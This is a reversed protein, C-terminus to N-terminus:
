ANLLLRVSCARLKNCALLILHVVNHKNNNHQNCAVLKSPLTHGSAPGRSVDKGDCAYLASGMKRLGMRVFGMLTAKPHAM